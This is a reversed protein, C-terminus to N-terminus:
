CPMVCQVQRSQRGAQMAGGESPLRPASCSLECTHSGHRMERGRLASNDTGEDAVGRSRRQLEHGDGSRLPHARAALVRRLEM